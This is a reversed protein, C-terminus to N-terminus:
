FSEPLYDANFRLGNEVPHKILGEPLMISALDRVSQNLEDAPASLYHVNYSIDPLNIGYFSKKVDEFPTAMIDALLYATDAPNTQWLKLMQFHASILKKLANVHQKECDQRVALVDVILNPLSRSDFLRTYGMKEIQNPSPEYTIIADFHNQEISKVHEYGMMVVHVDERQLKAAELLKFLMIAGLNSNEVGISKGKLDALNKIGERVLLVDAGASVDLVALVTVPVGQDVVRLVEDLTIAVADVKGSLLMDASEALNLTNTLMVEQESLLGQKRALFMLAYGPWGKLAAVKLPPESACGILEAMATAALSSAALRLFDRRTFILRTAIKAYLNEPRGARFDAFVVRRNSQKALGRRGTV